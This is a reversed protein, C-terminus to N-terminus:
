EQSPSAKASLLRARQSFLGFESSRQVKCALQLPVELVQGDVQIQELLLAHLFDSHVAVKALSLVKRGDTGGCSMHLIHDGTDCLAEEVFHPQHICMKGDISVDLIRSGLNLDSIEKALLTYADDVHEWTVRWRSCSGGRSWMYSIGQGLLGLAVDPLSDLSSNGM